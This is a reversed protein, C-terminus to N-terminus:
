RKSKGPPPSPTKSDSKNDTSLDKNEVESEPSNAAHKAQNGKGTRPQTVFLFGLLGLAVVVLSGPGVWRWLFLVVMLAGLSTYLARSRAKKLNRRGIVKKPPDFPQCFHAGIVARQGCSPCIYTRDPEPLNAM